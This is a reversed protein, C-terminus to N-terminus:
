RSAGCWYQRAVLKVGFVTTKSRYHSLLASAARDRSAIPELREVKSSRGRRTRSGGQEIPRCAGGLRAGAPQEDDEPVRGGKFRHTRRRRPPSPDEVRTELTMNRHLLM